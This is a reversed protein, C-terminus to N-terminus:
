PKVDMYKEKLKLVTEQEWRATYTLFDVMGGSWPYYAWLTAGFFDFYALHTVKTFNRMPEMQIHGYHFKQRCEKPNLLRFELRHAEPILTTQWRFSVKPSNSYKNETVVVNKEQHILRHQDIYENSLVFDNDFDTKFKWFVALPVGVLYVLKYAKGGREDPKLHYIFPKWSLLEDESPNHATTQAFVIAHLGFILYFGFSLFIHKRNPSV